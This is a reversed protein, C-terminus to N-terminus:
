RSVQIRFGDEEFLDFLDRFDLVRVYKCYPFLTSGLCSLIISHWLISWKQTVLLQQPSPLDESGGKVPAYHQFRPTRSVTATSSLNKVCKYLTTLAPVALRKSSVACAYLTDFAKQADDVREDAIADCVMHLIDDPLEVPM